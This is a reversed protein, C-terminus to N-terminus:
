WKKEKAVAVGEAKYTLISPTPDDEAGLDIVYDNLPIDQPHCMIEFCRASKHCNSIGMGKPLYELLFVMMTKYQVNGGKLTNCGVHSIYLKQGWTNAHSKMNAVASRVELYRVLAPSGPTVQWGKRSPGMPSAPASNISFKERERRAEAMMKKERIKELYKARVSDGTGLIEEFKQKEELKRQRANRNVDVIREQLGPIRQVGLREVVDAASVTLLEATADRKPKEKLDMHIISTWDKGRLLSEASDAEANVNKDNCHTKSETRSDYKRMLSSMDYIVGKILFRTGTSHRRYLDKVDVKRWTDLSCGFRSRFRDPPRPVGLLDALLERFILSISSLSIVSWDVELVPRNLEGPRWLRKLMGGGMEVVMFTSRIAGRNLAGCEAM